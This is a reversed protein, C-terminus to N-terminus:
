QKFRVRACLTKEKNMDHFICINDSSVDLNDVRWEVNDSLLISDFSVGSGDGQSGM